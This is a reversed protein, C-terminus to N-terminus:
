HAILIALICFQFRGTSSQIYPELASGFDIEIVGAPTSTMSTADTASITIPAGGTKLFNIYFLMKRQHSYKKSSLGCGFACIWGPAMAELWESQFHKGM